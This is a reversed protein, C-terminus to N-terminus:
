NPKMENNVMFYDNNAEISVDHMNSIQNKNKNPNKDQNKDDITKKRKDDDMINENESKPIKKQHILNTPDPM